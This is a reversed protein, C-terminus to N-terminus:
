AGNESAELFAWFVIEYVEGFMQPDGAGVGEVEMVEESFQRPNKPPDNIIREQENPPLCYGLTVCLDDLLHGVAKKSLQLPNEEFRKGM